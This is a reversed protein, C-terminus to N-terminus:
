PLLVALAGFMRRDEPLELELTREVVGLPLEDFRRENPQNGAVLHRNRLCRLRASLARVLIEAALRAGKVFVNCDRSREEFRKASIGSLRALRVLRRASFRDLQIISLKCDNPRLGNGAMVVSLRRELRKLESAPTSRSNDRSRTSKLSLLNVSGVSTARSVPTGSMDSM